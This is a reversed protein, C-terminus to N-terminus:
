GNAMPKFSLLHFQSLIGFVIGTLQRKCNQTLHLNVLLLQTLGALVLLCSSILVVHSCVRRAAVTFAAVALTIVLSQHVKMPKKRDHGGVTAM